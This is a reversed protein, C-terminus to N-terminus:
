VRGVIGFTFRVTDTVGTDSLTSPPDGATDQVLVAIDSGAASGIIFSNVLAFLNDSTMTAFTASSSPLFDYPYGQITVAGASVGKSSLQLDINYFALASGSGPTGIVIYNGVQSTYTVGSANGGFSITPAFTGTAITPLSATLSVFGNADVDFAASDFHSLGNLATTSLTTSASRQVQVAWTNAAGSFTRVGESGAAGSAAQAATVTIVGSGDPLVPDTGPASSSDVQVSRAFGGGIASVFGNADVTFDASNYHSLGNLATTSVTTSASRQVQVSWTNAANSFTRVGNSGAGGSGIQEGTVTIVGSSNPLVPDTGPALNADVEVSRAFGGGIAAVFGNADVTFDASNFHSLGNLATTSVTTSASRQVQVAWTNAAGSFTRIGESGAGASAVQAATVTIVGSGDPLVPDTGPASSSDVEVSRSFGGGIASVFGSADVTFDASNFSAAGASTTNTATTSAAYQIQIQVTDSTTGNTQLPNGSNAVIAGTMTIAGSGDPLVPSTGLDVAISDIAEGGGTLSITVDDGSAVTTVGSGGIININGGVPFATGTDGSLQSLSSSGGGLVVWDASIIGNSASYSILEFVSGSTQDIWNQGIPYQGFSGRIDTSTPSRTQIVPSSPFQASSATGGGQAYLNVPHGSSPSSM